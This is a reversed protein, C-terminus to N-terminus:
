PNVDSIFKLVYIDYGGQVIHKRKRKYSHVFKYSKICISDLSPELLRLKEALRANLKCDM